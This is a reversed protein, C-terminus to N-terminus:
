YYELDAERNECYSQSKYTHIRTDHQNMADIRFLNTNSPKKKKIM